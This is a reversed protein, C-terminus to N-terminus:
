AKKIGYLKGEKTAVPGYVPQKEIEAGMKDDNFRVIVIHSVDDHKFMDKVAKNADIQLGEDVNEPHDAALREVLYESLPRLASTPASEKLEKLKYLTSDMLSLISDIDSKLEDEKFLSKGERTMERLSELYEIADQKDTTMVNKLNEVKGYIGQYEEILADVLDVVKEYFENLAIHASYKDTKLHAKWSEVMSGQLTGLYEEITNVKM